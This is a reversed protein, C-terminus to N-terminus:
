RLRRGFNAFAPNAFAVVVTNTNGYTLSFDVQDNSSLELAHGTVLRSPEAAAGLEVGGKQM